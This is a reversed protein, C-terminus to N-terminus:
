RCVGRKSERIFRVFERVCSLAALKSEIQALAKEASLNSRFFLRYAEQIGRIEEASIGKREMGIRNIGFLRVRNGSAIVYPPVDQPVRTHGGTMVCTGVSCFQHIGSAAGLSVADALHVHGGLMAAAAMIVADGVVCDHGVHCYAMIWNQSGIRTVGGGEETGRNLTVFERLTNEDGMELTSSEGRRYKKDQPDSGIQAYPYIQNRHGITTHEGISVHHAIQNEEGIHVNEGIISYAGVSTGPGISASPHVLATPHIQTATSRATPM